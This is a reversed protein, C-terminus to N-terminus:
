YKATTFGSSQSKEKRELNQVNQRREFTRLIQVCKGFSKCSKCTSAMFDDEVRRCVVHNVLEVVKIVKQRITIKQPPSIIDSQM